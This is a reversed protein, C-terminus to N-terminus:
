QYCCSARGKKHVTYKYGNSNDTFDGTERQLWGFGCCSRFSIKIFSLNRM